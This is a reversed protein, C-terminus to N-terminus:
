GGGRRAGVKDVEKQSTNERRLRELDVCRSLYNERSKPLLQTVGALLQVADLTGGVEEKCQPCFPSTPAMCAPGLTVKRPGLYETGELVM